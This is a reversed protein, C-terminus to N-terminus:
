WQLNLISNEIQGAMAFKCWEKVNPLPPFSDEKFHPINFCIVMEGCVISFHLMM